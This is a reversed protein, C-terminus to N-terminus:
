AHAAFSLILMSFSFSLPGVTMQSLSPPSVHSAPRTRMHMKTGHGLAPLAPSEPAASPVTATSRSRVAVPTISDGIARVYLGQVTEGNSHRIPSMIIRCSLSRSNRLFFAIVPSTLTQINQTTCLTWPPYPYSPNYSAIKRLLAPVNRVQASVAFWDDGPIIFGTRSAPPQVAQVAQTSDSLLQDGSEDAQTQSHILPLHQNAGDGYGIAFTRKAREERTMDADQVTHETAPEESNHQIAAPFPTRDTHQSSRDTNEPYFLSYHADLIRKALMKYGSRESWELTGLEQLHKIALQYDNGTLGNRAKADWRRETLM